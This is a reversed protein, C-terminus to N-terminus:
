MSVTRVTHFFCNDPLHGVFQHMAPGIFKGANCFLIHSKTEPPEADNVYEVPM